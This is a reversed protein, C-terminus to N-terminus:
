DAFQIAYLDADKMMFRLQIPTGALRSLDPGGKWRVAREIENGIIEVCDEMGFGPIPKGATDQAEVRISGAASTAFNMLLRRGRFTLPKTVMEGGAYPARVSAFGDLRLSYRRLHATPQAYDQNVYVSMEAAGTPVVNLAPYTTRSVWNRPGLGPRIFAELFTRDYSNGGRSTMFVADSTDKFYSPHVGIAKAEEESLVQRGPMFRAALAVYIHPARFYPHTQSTYLHDIVTAAGAADRYEMLTIGRWNVFDDSEARCIRRINDKLVRFFMVYRREGPSWCVVNQSDFMFPFPVEPRSLVPKERRKKWHLGDPSTFAILGTKLTGGLAKYREDPAILPNGDLMPSFNHSLDNVALVINNSRSGAWEVLGLKPKTWHKGDDSEAVCTVERIGAMKTAPTGRYYLRYREGDRLMTCYASFPGEWPEDFHLVVGEDRPEHLKLEVGRLSAILYRDLFPERREALELTAAGAGLNALQVLWLFARAVRTLSGQNNLSLMFM